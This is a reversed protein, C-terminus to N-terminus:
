RATRHTEFSLQARTVEPHMGEAGNFTLSGAGPVPYWPATLSCFAQIPLGSTQATVPVPPLHHCLFPHCIVSPPQAAARRALVPHTQLRRSHRAGQNGHGPTVHHGPPGGVTSGPAAPRLCASRSETLHGPLLDRDCQERAHKESAPARFM